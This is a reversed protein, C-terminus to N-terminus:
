DSSPGPWGALRAMMWWFAQAKLKCQLPHSHACDPIQELNACQDPHADCWLEVGREALTSRRVGAGVFFAEVGSARLERGLLRAVRALVEGPSQAGALERGARALLAEPAAPAGLRGTALRTAASHFGQYVLATALALAAGHVPAFDRSADAAQWAAATATAALLLAVFGSAASVIVHRLWAPPDLLRYRVVAWGLALPLALGGLALLASALPPPQVGIVFAALPGAGGLVFAAMAARARAREVPSLGRGPFACAAVLLTGALFSAALAVREVGDVAAPEDFRLQAVLAPVAWLLYPLTALARRRFRPVVVPFRAALHLLAAPLACWALLGLRARLVPAGVLGADDPTALGVAAGLGTGLCLSVAFLPTAVPHRGGLVCALAFLLLASAALLAPWQEALAHATHHTAVRLAVNRSGRPGRLEALVADGAHLGALAGLVESRSPPTILGADGPVRLGLVREGPRLAAGPARLLVAAFPVRLSPDLLEAFALRPAAGLQRPDPLLVLLVFGVFACGLLTRPPRM